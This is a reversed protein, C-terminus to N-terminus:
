VTQPSVLDLGNDAREGAPNPVRDIAYVPVLRRLGSRLADMATQRAWGLQQALEAASTDRVVIGLVAHAEMSEQGGLAAMARRARQAAVARLDLGAEGQGGKVRDARAHALVQEAALWDARFAEGARWQPATVQHRVWYERLRASGESM